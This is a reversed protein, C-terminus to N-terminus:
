AGALERSRDRAAELAGRVITQVRSSDLVAIAAATTGGPSTVKARLAAPEEDSTELLRAAGLLTHVVSTRAADAPMGLDVAGAMMAEALYFLYAPGSGSVATVADQLSEPVEVVVGVSTLLLRARELAETDCRAGASIGTVGSEIRAPTNPMARVVNALPMSAELLGTMIGAAISIVLAGPEVSPAIDAILGRVDQPKVVLIIVEAGACAEVADEILVGFRMALEAAREARKEAVVIVPRPTLRRQFGDILAEGMVGGGLVAIRTM